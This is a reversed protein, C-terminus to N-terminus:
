LAETLLPLQQQLRARAIKVYAEDQEIGVFPFGLRLCAVGCTGSGLFPDLVTGGPPTILRVLWEILAVPKVTPHINSAKKGRGGDRLASDACESIPINDLAFDREGRSAKACYKFPWFDVPEYSFQPFFRAASGEDEYGGTQFDNPNGHYGQKGAQNNRQRDTSKSMGSQRALEAVCCSPDCEWEDGDDTYRFQRKAASNQLRMRDHGNPTVTEGDLLSGQGWSRRQCAPSHTLLLNPPWRGVTTDLPSSTYKRLINAGETQPIFRGSKPSNCREMARADSETTGVRSAAINLAGCGWRLVNAAISPESLPKRCLYIPEMAPKLASGYGEWEGELNKSKPFGSGTLWALLCGISLISDRVEFGADEIACAMRHFTRSGGFACLHAGPKMVRYVERWFSPDFAIGTSDWAVGMFGGKGSGTLDYPPDTVIAHISNEDLTKLLERSDGHLLRFREGQLLDSMTPGKCLLTILLRGSFVSHLSKRVDAANSRTRIIRMRPPSTAIISGTSVAM